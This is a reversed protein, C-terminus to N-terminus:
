KPPSFARPRRAVRPLCIVESGTGGGERVESGSRSGVGEESGGRERVESGNGSGGGGERVESGSGSWGEVSVESGSGGREEM